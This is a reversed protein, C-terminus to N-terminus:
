PMVETATYRSPRAMLSSRALIQRSGDAPKDLDPNLVRLPLVHLLRLDTGAGVREGGRSSRDDLGFLRLLIGLGSSQSLSAEIFLRRVQRRLASIPEM